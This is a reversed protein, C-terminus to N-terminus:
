KHATAHAPQGAAQRAAKSPAAAHEKLAAIKTKAAELGATLDPTAISAETEIREDLANSLNELRAAETKARATEQDVAATLREIEDRLDIAM